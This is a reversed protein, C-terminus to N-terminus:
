FNLFQPGASNDRYRTIYQSSVPTAFTAEHAMKPEMAVFQSSDVNDGTLLLKPAIVPAFKKVTATGMVEPTIPMEKMGPIKVEYFYNRTEALGGSELNTGFSVFDPNPSIVHIKSLEGGNQSFNTKFRKKITDASDASRPYFGGAKRIQEPSRKDARYFTM